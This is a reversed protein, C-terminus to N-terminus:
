LLVVDANHLYRLFPCVAVDILDDSCMDLADASDSDHIVDGDFSFRVSSM